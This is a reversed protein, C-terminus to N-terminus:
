LYTVVLPFLYSTALFCVFGQEDIMSKYSQVNQSHSLSSQVGSREGVLVLQWDTGSHDREPEKVKGIGGIWLRSTVQQGGREFVCRIWYLVRDVGVMFVTCLLVSRVATGVGGWGQWDEGPCTSLRSIAWSYDTQCAAALTRNEKRKSPYPPPPLLM